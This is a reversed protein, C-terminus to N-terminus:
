FQKFYTQMLAEFKDEDDLSDDRHVLPQKCVKCRLFTEEKKMLQHLSECVEVEKLPCSCIYKYTKENKVDFIEGLIKTQQELSYPIEKIDRLRNRYSDIKKDEQLIHNLLWQNLMEYFDKCTQKADSTDASVMSINAIIERHQTKHAELLPYNIHKMYTEEDKFHMQAYDVIERVLKQVETERPPEPRKLLEDCDIIFQFLRKHQEDLHQNKISFEESWELM